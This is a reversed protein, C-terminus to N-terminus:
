FGDRDHPDDASHTAGQGHGHGRERQIREFGRDVRALLRRRLPGRPLASLAFGEIATWIRLQLRECLRLDPTAVPVM